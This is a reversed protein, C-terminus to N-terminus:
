LRMQMLLLQMNAGADAAVADMMADCGAASLGQSLFRMSVVLPIHRSARDILIRVVSAAGEDNISNHDLNLSRLGCSAISAVGGALIRVQVDDSKLLRVTLCKIRGGTDERLASCLADMAHAGDDEDAVDEVCLETVFLHISADAFTSALEIVRAAQFPSAHVFASLFLRQAMNHAVATTERLSLILPAVEDDVPDDPKWAVFGTLGPNHEKSFPLHVTAADPFTAGKAVFERDYPNNNPMGCRLIRKRAAACAHLALMRAQLLQVFIKHRTLEEEVHPPDTEPFLWTKREGVVQCVDLAKLKDGALRCM